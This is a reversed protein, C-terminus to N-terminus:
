KKNWKLHLVAITAHFNATAGADTLAPEDRYFQWLSGSAKSYNDSYEILKNTPMIVDINKANDIQTNNIEGICDTFPACNKFIVKKNANNPNDWAQAAMSMTGQVLIYEDKYDCLRSRLISIKFKRQSNTNYMGYSDDNIEFWNKIRFKTPPNPTNGLLNIM